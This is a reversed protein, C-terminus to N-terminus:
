TNQIPDIGTPIFEWWHDYEPTEWGYTELHSELRGTVAIDMEVDEGGVPGMVAEECDACGSNLSVRGEHIYLKWPHINPGPCPPGHKPQLSPDDPDMREFKIAM